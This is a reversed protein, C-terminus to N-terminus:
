VNLIILLSKIIHIIMMMMIIMKMLIMKMLIIIMTIMMVKKLFNMTNLKLGNVDIGFYDCDKSTFYLNNKSILIKSDDNDDILLITFPKTPFNKDIEYNDAMGM